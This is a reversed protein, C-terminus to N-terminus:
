GEFWAVADVAARQAADKDAYVLDEFGGIPYWGRSDEPDRRYEEFGFSGDARRFIDVCISGDANNVSNLVLRKM